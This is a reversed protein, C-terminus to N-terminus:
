PPSGWVLTGGVYATVRSSDAYATQTGYSHDDAENFPSWDAKAFRLQIDGTAAGPALTGGTFGVELYTDAGPRASVPVVRQTVNGCGIAAWDCWTNVTSSGGDRTFWYRVKVGALQVPSTGTNVVQLGPKADNPSRGQDYNRYQM